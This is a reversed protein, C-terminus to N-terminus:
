ARNAGSPGLYLNWSEWGRDAPWKTRERRAETGSTVAMQPIAEVERPSPGYRQFLPLIALPVKDSV